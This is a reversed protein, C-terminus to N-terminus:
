ANRLVRIFGPLNVGAGGAGAYIAGDSGSRWARIKYTHSAATPTFRRTLFVPYADSASTALPLAMRGLDTTADWLNIIVQSGAVAGMELRPSYFQVEIPEAEYTIAGSSVVDNPTAEATATVIVNSMFETYNIPQRLANLNDRVHTNTTASTLVEGVTYTKPTTWAM